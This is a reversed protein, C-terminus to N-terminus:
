NNELRLPEQKFTGNKSTTSLPHHEVLGVTAEVLPGLHWYQSRLVRKVAHWLLGRQENIKLRIEIV